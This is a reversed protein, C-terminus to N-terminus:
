LYSELQVYRGLFFIFCYKENRHMNRVLAVPPALVAVDERVFVQSLLLESGSFESSKISMFCKINYLLKMFHPDAIHVAYSDVIYWKECSM